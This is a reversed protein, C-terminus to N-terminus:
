NEFYTKYFSEVSHIVYKPENLLLRKLKNRKQHFTERNLLIVTFPTNHVYNKLSHLLELSHKIKPNIDSPINDVNKVDLKAEVPM